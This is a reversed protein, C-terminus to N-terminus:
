TKCDCMNEVKRELQAGFQALMWETQLWVPRTTLGTMAHYSSWPWAECEGVMGARVPNLVVYRALELLHADKEVLIAKYRGQFLHGTRGYKRNTAQTFVGNLHRMGRALNGEITEVVIHYHNDMLCWAHCVGNFRSCTAAFVDLWLLRDADNHSIDERRDGRSTVHLAPLNL